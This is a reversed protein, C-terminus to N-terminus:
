KIILIINQPISVFTLNVEALIGAFSGDAIAIFLNAALQNQDILSVTSATHGNGDQPANQILKELWGHAKNSIVFLSAM